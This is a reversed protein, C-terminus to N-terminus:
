EQGDEDADDGAADPNDYEDLSNQEDDPSIDRVGPRHGEKLTERDMPAPDEKAQDAQERPSLDPQNGGMPRIAQGEPSAAWASSTVLLMAAIAAPLSYKM